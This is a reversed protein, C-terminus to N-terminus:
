SSVKLGTALIVLTRTRRASAALLDHSCISTFFGPFSDTLVLSEIMWVLLAQLPPLIVMHFPVSGCSISNRQKTKWKQIDLTTSNIEVLGFLYQRFFHIIQDAESSFWNPISHLIGLNNFLSASVLDLSSGSRFFSPVASLAVSFSLSPPSFSDARETWKHRVRRDQVTHDLEKPYVQFSPAWEKEM